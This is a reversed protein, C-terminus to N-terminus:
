KHSRKIKVNFTNMSHIHEDGELMGIVDDSNIGQLIDVVGDVQNDNLGDKDIEIVIKM